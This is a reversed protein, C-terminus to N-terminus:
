KRPTKKRALVKLFDEVPMTKQDRNLAVVEHEVDAVLEVQYLVADLKEKPIIVVGDDDGVVIDGPYIKAGGFYVPIKTEFHPKLQTPLVKVGTGLSFMPMSLNRIDAVDRNKADVVWGAIGKNAARTSVNLGVLFTEKIESIILVQGAPCQDVVHYMSVPKEMDRVLTLRSTFAEGVMVKGDLPKLPLVGDIWCDRIGLLNLADTVYGTECKKLFALKEELTKAM